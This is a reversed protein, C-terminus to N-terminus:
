FAKSFGESRVKWGHIPFGPTSRNPCGDWGGAMFAVAFLFAGLSPLYPFPVKSGGPALGVDDFPMNEDLLFDIARDCEKLRAANVSLLGFDWGWCNDFRWTNWIKDSTARMMALDLKKSGPLWGYMGALAPHEWNYKTWMEQVGPWLVYVGDQTPLPALHNLVTFWSKEPELGLRDWWKMAVALGFRWYELEFSSNYTVRPDTNESVVHLPPGLDYVRTEKNWAAYSAMFDATARVVPQWKKLTQRTPHARYDLEAFALPHPQQWILLANIEGPAMKGEPDTMKPWRAGKYGQSSARQVAKPLFRHYINLSRSLLSWRNFLALYGSHWWNMEMHFKGYWGLNVLGSEQPPCDGAANVAMIYQALVIRRELEFWRPDSSESLDIAGGSRWFTPWSAASAKAIVSADLIEIEPEFTASLKLFSSSLESLELVYRHDTLHKVHGKQSWRLVVDYSTDDVVHRLRARTSQSEEVTTSHSEPQDWIGAYPASFKSEGNSFPFDIFVSLQGRAVLLSEIQIAIADQEPHVCTEISIDHGDWRLSSHITGTWLDLHQTASDLDSELVVRDGFRLGIRGLNMRNPNSILWQSVPTRPAPIDYNVKRGHTELDQGHYDVLSSGAPLQDNKWGWESMTAFPVFTQLGSIDAGFAFRGNGVQMPSQLNSVTRAPNHRRVLRERDINPEGDALM